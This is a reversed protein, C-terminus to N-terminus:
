EKYKKEVVATKEHDTSLRAAVLDVHMLRGAGFDVKGLETKVLHKDEQVKKVKYVLRVQLGAGPGEVFASAEAPSDFPVTFAVPKARWVSQPSTEEAEDKKPRLVKAPEGWAMSVMGVGDTCEVLGDIEIPLAKKKSNYPLVKVGTDVNLVTVYTGEKVKPLLEPRKKENAAKEADEGPATSFLAWVGDPCPKGSTVKLYAPDDWPADLHAPEIKPIAAKRKEDEKKEYADKADDRKKVREEMKKKHNTCGGTGFVLPVLSILLLGRLM